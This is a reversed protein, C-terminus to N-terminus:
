PRRVVGSGVLRGVVIGAVVIIVVIIVVVTGSRGVVVAGVGVARGTAISGPM